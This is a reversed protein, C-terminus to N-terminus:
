NNLKEILYCLDKYRTTRTEMKIPPYYAVHNKSKDPNTIFNRIDERLERTQVPTDDSTKLNSNIM